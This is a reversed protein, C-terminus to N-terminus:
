QKHSRHTQQKIVEKLSGPIVEQKHISSIEAKLQLNELTLENVRKELLSVYQDTIM